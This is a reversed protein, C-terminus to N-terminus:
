VAHLLNGKMFATGILAGNSVAKVTNLDDLTHIGSESIILPTYYMQKVLYETTHLSVSFNDLNRNNIGVIPPKFANVKQIDQLDHCEVIVDLQLSRAYTHLEKLQTESLIKAILLVVDAGYSRAYDIQKKSIIFEKNLLILQPFAERVKKLDDYTGGFYPEDTLVSVVKAGRNKYRYVQGVIPSNSLHGSSPTKRKYEFIITYENKLKEELSFTERLDTLTINPLNEVFAHKEKVIKDLINM